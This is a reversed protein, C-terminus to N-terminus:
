ATTFGLSTMGLSHYLRAIELVFFSCFSCKILLKHFSMFARFLFYLVALFDSIVLISIIYVSSHFDSDSKLVKSLVCDQQDSM